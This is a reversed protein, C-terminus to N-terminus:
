PPALGLRARCRACLHGTTHDVTSARGRADTMLCSTDPCHPLGLTHGVEHICTTVMRFHVTREDPAHLRCRFTSIVCATGGLDGLGLLGWDTVGHATTSIDVETVGLVRTVPAVQRPRLADLLREARYRRRPAYWASPPLPMVPQVTVNVGLEARLGADIETLFAAPFSGLPVLGVTAIPAHTQAALTRAFLTAPTAALLTLLDRRTPTPPARRSTM